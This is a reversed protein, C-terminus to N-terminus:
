SGPVTCSSRAVCYLVGGIEDIDAADHLGGATYTVRLGHMVWEGPRNVRLGLVIRLATSLGSRAAIIAGVAPRYLQEGGPPFGIAGPSGSAMPARSVVVGVESLGAGLGIPSVGTIRAPGDGNNPMALYYSIV